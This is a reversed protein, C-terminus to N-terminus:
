KKTRNISGKFDYLIYEKVKADYVRLKLFENPFKGRMESSFKKDGAGYNKDRIDFGSPGSYGEIGGKKPHSHIHEYSNGNGKGENMFSNLLDSAGWEKDKSHSTTIWSNTNENVKGWEVSTNEALWEFVKTSSKDNGMYFYDYSGNSSEGRNKDRLANEKVTVFEETKNGKSDLKYLRDVIKKDETYKKDDLYKINGNEDVGYTNPAM